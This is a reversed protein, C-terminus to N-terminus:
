RIHGCTDRKDRYQYSNLKLALLRSSKQMGLAAFNRGLCTRPGSGFAWFWRGMETVRREDEENKVIWREPRFEEPDPFVEANKHLHFASASVIVNAPISYGGIVSEENTRRPQQGPIPPYLRLTEKVVAHLLPLSDLIRLPPHSYRHEVGVFLPISRLEERLRSQLIQDRSLSWLAYTLAIGTTEHGAALTTHARVTIFIM